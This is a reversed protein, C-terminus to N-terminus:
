KKCVGLADAADKPEYDGCAYGTPCKFGAVGGCECYPVCVEICPTGPPATRCASGCANWNGGAARCVSESVTQLAPTVPAKVRNRSIIFSFAILGAIIVTIAVVAWISVNKRQRM